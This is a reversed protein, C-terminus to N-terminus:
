RCGKQALRYNMEHEFRKNLTDQAVASMFEVVNKNGMMEPLSPGYLINIPKRKATSRLFPVEEGKTANAFFLGKVKSAKRQKRVKVSMPSKANRYVKFKDLRLRDGEGIVAGFVGEATVKPRRSRIGMKIDASKVTYESRVKKAVAARSATLARGVARTAAWKLDKDDLLARACDMLNNDITINTM